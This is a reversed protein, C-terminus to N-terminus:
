DNGRKQIEAAFNYGESPLTDLFINSKCCAAIVTFPRM